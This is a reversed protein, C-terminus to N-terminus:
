QGEEGGSRGRRLRRLYRRAVQWFARVFERDTSSLGFLALLALFCAGFVVGVALISPIGDPLPLPSRSLYAAGAALVGASLPKLYQPSFPWVGLRRRVMVLTAANELSIAASVGIAAGVLGFEPVL